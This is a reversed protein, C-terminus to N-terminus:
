LASRAERAIPTIRSISQQLERTVAAYPRFFLAEHRFFDDRM